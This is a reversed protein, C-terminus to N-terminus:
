AVLATKEENGNSRNGKQSIRARREGCLFDGFIKNVKLEFVIINEVNESFYPIKPCVKKECIIRLFNM